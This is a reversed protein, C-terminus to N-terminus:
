PEEAQADLTLLTQATHTEVLWTNADLPPLENLFAEPEAVPLSCIVQPDYNWWQSNLLRQALEEPFRPRIVKAPNGGVLTYPPVNKTVVSRAAVVSGTGITVGHAITVGEGIWVDHGLTIGHKQPNPVAAFDAGYKKRIWKAFRINEDYFCSSTSVAEVPHRGGLATLGSAISCYRGVHLFFPIPSWSYSGMGMSPILDGNFVGIGSEFRVDAHFRVPHSDRLPHDANFFIGSEDLFSKIKWYPVSRIM